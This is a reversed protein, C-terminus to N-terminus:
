NKESAKQQGSVPMNAIAIAACKNPWLVNQFALCILQLAWACVFITSASPCALKRM